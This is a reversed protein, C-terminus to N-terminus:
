DCNSLFCIEAYWNNYLDILDKYEENDTELYLNLQGTKTIM